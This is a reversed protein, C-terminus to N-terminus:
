ECACGIGKCFPSKECQIENRSENENENGKMYFICKTNNPTIKHEDHTCFIMYRFYCEECDCVILNDLNM